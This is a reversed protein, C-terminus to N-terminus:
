VTKEFSLIGKKHLELVLLALADNLTPHWITAFSEDTATSHTVRVEHEQYVITLLFTGTDPPM